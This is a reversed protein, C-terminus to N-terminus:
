NACNLFAGADCDALFECCPRYSDVCEQLDVPNDTINDCFVTYSATCQGVQSQCKQKAKKTIKKNKNKAEGTIADALFAALGALGLSVLSARRTVADFAVDDM